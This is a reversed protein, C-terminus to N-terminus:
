PSEELILRDDDYVGDPWQDLVGHIPETPLAREAHAQQTTNTNYTFELGPACAPCFLPAIHSASIRHHRCRYLTIWADRSM